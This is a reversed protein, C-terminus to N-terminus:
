LLRATAQILCIRSPRQALRSRKAHIINYSTQNIYRFADEGSNTIHKRWLVFVLLIGFESLVDTARHLYRPTLSLQEGVQLKEIDKYKASKCNVIYPENVVLNGHAVLNRREFIEVFNPWREYHGIIKIDLHSEIFQVQDTHSGRMLNNIENDIVQLVAEELNKKAFIEKLSIPKDSGTYREPHVSLFFRVVESFYSDFTAVLSLLTASPLADFGQKDIDFEDLLSRIDSFGNGSIEYVSVVGDDEVVKLNKRAHTTLKQNIFYHAMSPAVASTFDIMSHVSTMSKRFRDLMGAVRDRVKSTPDELNKKVEEVDPTVNTEELSRSSGAKWKDLGDRDPSVVFNTIDGEEDRRFALFGILKDAEAM